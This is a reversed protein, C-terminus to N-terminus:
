LTKRIREMDADVMEKVLDHFSIKPKWGLEEKIRRPDALLHNVEAPRLFKEDIKVFERYDLGVHSFALDCFEHVQHAEGSGVVYDKPTSQQMMLFISEVMDAAHSWDRYADLNGLRLERDLGYKIRAVSNSIKRTVFEIGRRKSEHNMLIGAVAFLGYSERHNITSWHAHLKAVAYPSRPYFLTQESQPPPASGFLESSSAQYYKIKPNIIRIAELIRLTGLATIESTLIPQQWSVGVHSMAALNYCEDPDSAELVKLISSFDLVDGELLTLQNLIHEIRWHCSTSTRRVVGFVRYGKELLLESLYSGDQGTVGFIIAKKM